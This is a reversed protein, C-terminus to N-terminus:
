TEFSNLIYWMYLAVRQMAGYRNPFVGWTLATVGGLELGVRIEQATNNVAYLNLAPNKEVVEALAKAHEPSCFCECYEKQYV